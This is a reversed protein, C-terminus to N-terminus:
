ATPVWLLTLQTVRIDAAEARITVTEVDAAAERWRADIEAVEDLLEQELDALEDEKQQAKAEATRRREAARLPRFPQSAFSM